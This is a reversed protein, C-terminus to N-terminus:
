KEAGKARVAVPMHQLSSSLKWAVLSECVAFGMSIVAYAALAVAMAGPIELDHPSTRVMLILALAAAGGGLQRMVWRNQEELLERLPEVEGEACREEATIWSLYIRPVMVATMILTVTFTMASFMNMSERRYQTKAAQRKRACFPGM